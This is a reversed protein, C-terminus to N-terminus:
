KIILGLYKKNFKIVLPKKRKKKCFHFFALNDSIDDSLLVGNKNLREWIKSYILIRGQYSKDSDYHCLDYNKDSIKNIFNVQPGIFLTWNPYNKKKILNGILKKANDFYYPMDISILKGFNNEKCASLISLTSLGNAVGFEIINKPKLIRVLNYILVADSGGGLKKNVKKNSLHLPKKIKYTKKKFLFFYLDKHNILHKKCLNEAKKFSFREYFRIKKNFTKNLLFIISYILHLYYSNKIMWFTIKLRNLM